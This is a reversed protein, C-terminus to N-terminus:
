RHICLYYRNYSSSINILKRRIQERLVSKIKFAGHIHIQGAHSFIAPVFHLHLRNQDAVAIQLRVTNTNMIYIDYRVQLHRESSNDDTPRSQGDLGTVTVSTVTM